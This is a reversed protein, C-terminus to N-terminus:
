RMKSIIWLIINVLVTAGASLLIMSTIPIFIRSNERAIKIDGPLQGFWNFLKPFIILLTGALLLLLGVIMLTKGLEM